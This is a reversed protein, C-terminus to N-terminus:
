AKLEATAETTENETADETFDGKAVVASCATM